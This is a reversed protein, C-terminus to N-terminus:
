VTTSLPLNIGEEKLEKIYENYGNEMSKHLERHKEGYKGHQELCKLCVNFFEVFTNKVDEVDKPTTEKRYEKVFCRFIAM